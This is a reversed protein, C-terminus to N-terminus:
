GDIICVMFSGMPNSSPSFLLTLIALACLFEKPCPRQRLLPYSGLWSRLVLGGCCWPMHIATMATELLLEQNLDVKDEKLTGRPLCMRLMLSPWGV